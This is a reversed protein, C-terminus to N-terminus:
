QIDKLQLVVDDKPTYVVQLTEKTTRGFKDKAEFIFTNIGPSLLIRETFNGQEDILVTSNNIKLDVTNKTTGTLSIIQTTVTIVNESGLIIQPGLVMHRATYGAYLLILSLFVILVLTILKKNRM